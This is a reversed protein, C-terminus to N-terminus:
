KNLHNLFLTFLIAAILVIVYQLWEWLDKLKKM